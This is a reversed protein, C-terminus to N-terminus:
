QFFLAVPSTLRPDDSSNSPSTRFGPRLLLFFFLCFFLIQSAKRVRTTSLFSVFFQSLEPPRPSTILTVRDRTAIEQRESLDFCPLRPKRYLAILTSVWTLVHDMAVNKM